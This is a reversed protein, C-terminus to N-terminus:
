NDPQVSDPGGIAFDIAEKLEEIFNRADAIGMAYNAWRGDDPDYIGQELDTLASDATPVSLTVIPTQKGDVEQMGAGTGIGPILKHPTESM